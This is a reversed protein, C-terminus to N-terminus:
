KMMKVLGRYGKFDRYVFSITAVITVPITQHITLINAHYKCSSYVFTGPVFDPKSDSIQISHLIEERQLIM